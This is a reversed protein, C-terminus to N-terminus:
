LFSNYKHEIYVAVKGPGFEQRLADVEKKAVKDLPLSHGYAALEVAAKTRPLLVYDKRQGVILGVRAPPRGNLIQIELLDKM